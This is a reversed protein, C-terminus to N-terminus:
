KNNEQSGSEQGWGGGGPTEILLIDGTEVMTTVAYPLDIRKGKKFLSNRGIKGANGGDIGYPPRTRRGTILSLTLTKRFEIERIMGDGGRRRGDGGSGRRIEFRMLRLPLRSEMVEPDTIRTNTMHTHVADAGNDDNTAGSGGGITEYFGFTEDGILLNNMTGQSAAAAHLAGLLVDVVRQSTEVNGAVVAACRNPDHNAPPNLLGSPILLDIDRLVGDCLPLQSNGSVSRIVYLVAATIIAPTANFGHPHVDATGAFDIVLQADKRQISVAIETGDDLSDSFTMSHKPLGRIWEAVTDAAVELIRQMYHDVIEVSYLETMEILRRVGEEGAAQQAAIDALNEDANRSPYPGSILHERLQKERCVGDRVFAFDRIVIGEEALCVADPPMSGPTRGGIEAHHARTAVFFDPRGSLVHKDCFVPTVSTVDPLHSGGAFPDNSLYCDGAFMVPYTKMLHRVTHGMAGLHVPVHPANAILSGDHRFVACSYDRRDKVNVSISTRRLVEGMADAIGQLRRAIIELLVPDTEASVSETPLAVSSVSTSPTRRLRITGDFLVEGNWDSEVILTSEGSIIMAPATITDGPKLECRNVVGHYTESNPLTTKADPSDPDLQEQQSGSQEAVITAECRISVCQVLRDSRRYGFTQQHKEHFRRGITELPYAALTLTSQTGVYRVDVEYDYHVDGEAFRESQLEQLTEIKLEGCLQALVQPTSGDITQYVGRTNVRGVEALGMGLASLTSSHPHDIIENMSLADAVHCLHQGAAGGFGVLTMQRVDNGEATSVTRVAEAMHTVAIQLFGEALAELSDPSLSDPLKAAIQNLRETAAQRDLPFPFHDESLRNLILNVDTVTLPGGRGYCAPGPTSGASAPGVTLRGEQFDCISGGGAAVTKIDMMPTMVRVGAVRSEFRRGVRGRYRSVDTSTGGMDLGIAASVNASKAVHALAVVGGAPGSLISDRGRFAAATVLNGGSTMMRLRCKDPGGFQEEVRQVYEALIPNLYADLTTTEARSVMQILPAVESSRSIQEFGVQKAIREAIEEHVDNLYGHMFCIAISEVGGRRLEKLESRLHEEDLPILVDGSADLREKAEVVQETLPSFKKIVLDFLEPRDQDGIRLLDAFGATVVLATSSGTRTLLANTGRTTGLRVDLPPLEDSLSIGMLLRVALVPAEINPDLEIISNPTVCVDNPVPKDLEFAVSGSDFRKIKGLVMSQGDHGISRMTCGGWFGEPLECVVPDPSIVIFKAHVQRVVPLRIVGSSLVKMSRRNGDEVVFCDTFTGGVDAWVQVFQKM